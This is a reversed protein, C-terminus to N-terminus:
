QQMKRFTALEESGITRVLDFHVANNTLEINYIDYSSRTNEADIFEYTGAIGVFVTHTHLQRDLSFRSIPENGLNLLAQAIILVADYGLLGYHPSTESRFTDRLIRGNETNTSVASPGIHPFLIRVRFDTPDIDQVLCGDSLLIAPRQQPPTAKYVNRLGELLLIATSGYGCFLVTDAGNAKIAGACDRLNPAQNNLQGRYVIQRQSFWRAIQDALPISYGGAGTTVDEILALRKAALYDTLFLGAAPAQVADDAPPLRFVNRLKRSPRRTSLPAEIVDSATAIPMILPIGASEYIHAARRTTESTAHGIVALVRPQRIIERAIQEALAPDGADDKGTLSLVSRFAALDTSKELAAKAGRYMLEGQSRNLPYTRAVTTNLPPVGEGVVFISLPPPQDPSSEPKAKGLSLFFLGGVLLYHISDM